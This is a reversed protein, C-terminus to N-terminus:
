IGAFALSLAFALIVTNYVFSIVAHLLVTRRIQASSVAADSVQFCMGVTFALYAFDLYCPRDEGPFQVGGVGERDERYFLHAYRLTFSTHTISWALAVTVLCLVILERAELPALTKATRSLLAASLLSVVSTITVLAYVMTRGPDESAARHHTAPANCGLITLWAMALLALGAVNWGALLSVGVGYSRSALLTAVAGLALSLALRVLARRPALHAVFHVGSSPPPARDPAPALGTTM